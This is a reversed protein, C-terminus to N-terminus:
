ATTEGGAQELLRQINEDPPGSGVRIAAKLLWRSIDGEPPWTPKGDSMVSMFAMKELRDRRGDHIAAIIGNGKNLDPIPEASVRATFGADYLAQLVTQLSVPAM